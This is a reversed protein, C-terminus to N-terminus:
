GKVRLRKSPLRVGEYCSFLVEFEQEKRGGHVSTPTNTAVPELINKDLYARDAPDGTPKPWCRLRKEAIKRRGRLDIPRM